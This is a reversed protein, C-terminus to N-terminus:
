IGMDCISPVLTHYKLLYQTQFPVANCGPYECRYGGPPIIQNPPMGPLPPLMPRPTNEATLTQDIPTTHTTSYGETSSSTQGNSEGSSSASPLSPPLLPVNSTALSPRRNALHSNYPPYATPPSGYIHPESIASTPSMQYAYHSVPSTQQSVSYSNTSMIPSQGTTSSFSPRHAHGYRQHEATAAEALEDLQGTLQRFSPLRETKPSSASGDQAPSPQQFAPLTGASGESVPLVHKRLTPSAAISDNAPDTTQQPIKTGNTELKLPSGLAARIPRKEQFDDSPEDQASDVRVRTALEKRSCESESVSTVSELAESATSDQPKLTSTGNQVRDHSGAEPEAAQAPDEGGTDPLSNATEIGDMPETMASSQPSSHDSFSDFLHSQAPQSLDLNNPGLNAVLVGVGPTIQRVHRRSHNAGENGEVLIPQSELFTGPSPSRTIRVPQLLESRPIEDDSDYNM